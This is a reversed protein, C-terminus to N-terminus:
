FRSGLKFVVQDQRIKGYRVRTCAVVHSTRVLVTFFGNVYDLKGGRGRRRGSRTSEVHSYCTAHRGCDKPPFPVRCTWLAAAIQVATGVFPHTIHANQAYEGKQPGDVGFSIIHIRAGVHIFRMAVQLTSIFRVRFVRFEPLMESLRQFVFRNSENAVGQCPLPHFSQRAEQPLGYVPVHVVVMLGVQFDYWDMSRWSPRRETRPRPRERGSWICVEGDFVVMEIAVVCLYHRVKALSSVQGDDVDAYM